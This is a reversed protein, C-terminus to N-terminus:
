IIFPLYIIKHVTPFLFQFLFHSINPKAEIKWLWVSILLFYPVDTLWLFTYRHLLVIYKRIFAFLIRQYKVTFHFFLPNFLLYMSSYV